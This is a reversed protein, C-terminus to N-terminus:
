SRRASSERSFPIGNDGGTDADIDSDRSGVVGGRVGIGNVDDAEAAAAAREGKDRVLAECPLDTEICCESRDTVGLGCTARDWVGIGRDCVDRAICGGVDAGGTGEIGALMREWVGPGITGGLGRRREVGDGGVM